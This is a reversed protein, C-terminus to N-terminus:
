DPDPLYNSPYERLRTGDVYEQIVTTIVHDADGEPIMKHKRHDDGGVTESWPRETPEEGNTGKVLEGFDRAYFWSNRLTLLM